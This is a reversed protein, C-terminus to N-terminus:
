NHSLHFSAVTPAWVGPLPSPLLALIRVVISLGIEQDFFPFSCAFHLNKGSEQFLLIQLLIRIDNNTYDNLVKRSFRGELLITMSISFLYDM